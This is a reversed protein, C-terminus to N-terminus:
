APTLDTVSDITFTPSRGAVKLDRLNSDGLAKFADDRIHLMRGALSRESAVTFSWVRYIGRRKLRAKRLSRGFGRAKRLIPKGNRDKLNRLVVVYRQGEKFNKAPRIILMRNADTTANSDLEAWVPHRKGTRANFVVVPSRKRLSASLNALGPLRSRRLAEDNDLGPVRVILMSGPSFGDARNMDTPDIRVGDKNRPMLARPLDLRRGTDTSRDRKTLTDNPWPLMSQQKAQAATPTVLAALLAFAALGRGM